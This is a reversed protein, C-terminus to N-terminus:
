FGHSGDEWFWIESDHECERREPNPNATQRLRVGATAQPAGCKRLLTMLLISETNCQEYGDQLVRSAPIADSENYGLPIEDRVFDYIAGIREYDPLGCWNREDTLQTLLPHSFDLLGTLKLYRATEVTVAGVPKPRTNM